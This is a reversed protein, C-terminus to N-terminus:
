SKYVITNDSNKENKTKNHTQRKSSVVGFETLKNYGLSQHHALVDVNMDNNRVKGVNWCSVGNSNLKSLCLTILPKLFNQNWDQYTKHKNISQTTEKSYIELDFYPPSTIVLDINPLDYKNMQLADDCILTVQNEIQLFHAMSKLNGYTVTNPEFAIYHAGHAVCGLMRGGWGACPDLVIKPKYADCIMKAMQPRYMTNKVLHLCFYIGRKLESLYPTSHSKRNWRLVKELNESKWLSSFSRGDDMEIDYFNHCFHECLKLGLRSTSNITQGNVSWLRLDNWNKLLETDSYSVTYPVTELEKALVPVLNEFEEDSLNKTSYRVNLFQHIM